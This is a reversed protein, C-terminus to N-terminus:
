VIPEVTLFVRANRPRTNLLRLGTDRGAHVIIVRPLNSLKAHRNIQDVFVKQADDILLVSDERVHKEFVNLFDVVHFVECYGDKTVTARMGLEMGNCAIYICRGWLVRALLLLFTTRGSRRAGDIYWSMCNYLTMDKLIANIVGVKWPSRECSFKHGDPYTLM